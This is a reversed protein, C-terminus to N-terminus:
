IANKGDTCLDWECKGNNRAFSDWEWHMRPIGHEWGLYPCSGVGIGGLGEFVLEM